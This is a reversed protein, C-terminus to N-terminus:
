YAYVLCELHGNEAAYECTKENWPCGNEHAYVLCELHGNKAADATNKCEGCFNTTNMTSISYNNEEM